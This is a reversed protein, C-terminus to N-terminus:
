DSVSFEVVQVLMRQTPVTTYILVMTPATGFDPSLALAALMTWSSPDLERVMSLVHTHLQVQLDAYLNSM